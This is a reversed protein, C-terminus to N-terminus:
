EDNDEDSDYNETWASEDEPEYEYDEEAYDPSYPENEPEDRRKLRGLGWFMLVLLVIAGVDFSFSPKFGGLFPLVRPLAFGESGRLFNIVVATAIIILILKGVKM